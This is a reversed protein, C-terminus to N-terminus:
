RVEFRHRIPDMGSWGTRRIPLRRQPRLRALNERFWSMSGVAAGGDVPVGLQEGVPDKRNFTRQLVGATRLRGEIGHTFRQLKALWGYASSTRLQDADEVRTTRRSGM